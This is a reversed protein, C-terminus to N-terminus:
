VMREWSYFGFLSVTSCGTLLSFADASENENENENKLDNNLPFSTNFHVTCTYLHNICIRECIVCHVHLHLRAIHVCSISFIGHM